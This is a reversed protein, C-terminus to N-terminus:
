KRETKVEKEKDEILFYKSSVQFIDNKEKFLLIKKQFRRILGL